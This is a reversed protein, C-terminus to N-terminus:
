ASVGQSIAERISSLSYLGHRREIKGSGAWKRLTGPHIGLYGAADDPACWIDSNPDSVAVRMLRQVTWTTGCARCTVSSDFDEGTIRLRNGCDGDDTDAPCTVTWAERQTIGASSQAQRHCDRVEGAFDDVAPHDTCAKDLWARLFRVIETLTTAPQNNRGACRQASAPGYPGLEYFDRWDKEWAELVDVVSYGCVFDLANVRVGLPRETSRGNGGQGPLLANEALAYFELIDALQQNIRNQCRSCVLRDTVANRTCVTCTRKEDTM